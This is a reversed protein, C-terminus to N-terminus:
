PKQSKTEPWPVRSKEGAMRNPDLLWLLVALATLAVLVVLFWVDGRPRAPSSPPKASVNV